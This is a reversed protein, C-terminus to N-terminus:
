QKIYNIVATVQWAHTHRCSQSWVACCRSWSSSNGKNIFHNSNIHCVFAQTCEGDQQSPISTRLSSAEQLRKGRRLAATSAFQPPRKSEFSYLHRSIGILTYLNSVKQQPTTEPLIPIMFTSKKGGMTWKLQARPVTSLQLCGKSKCSDSTYKWKENSSTLMEIELWGSAWEGSVWALLSDRSQVRTAIQM